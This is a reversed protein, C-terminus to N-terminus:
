PRASGGGSDARINGVQIGGAVDVRKGRFGTATGHVDVDGIRIFAASVDELDV